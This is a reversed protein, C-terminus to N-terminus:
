GGLRVASLSAVYMSGAIAAAISKVSISEAGNVTVREFEQRVPASITPLAAVLTSGHYLGMNALGATSTEATGTNVVVASVRYTGAPLIGLTVVTAAVGPAATAAGAAKTDVIAQGFISM